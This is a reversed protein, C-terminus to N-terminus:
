EDKDVTEGAFAHMSLFSNVAGAAWIADSAKCFMEGKRPKVMILYDDFQEGVKSAIDRLKNAAIEDIKKTDM